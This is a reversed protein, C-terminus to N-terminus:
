SRTRRLENPLNLILLGVFMATSLYGTEPTSILSRAFYVVLWFFLWFIGVTTWNIVRAPRWALIGLAGFCLGSGLKMDDSLVYGVYIYLLTNMVVSVVVAGVAYGAQLLVVGTWRLVM